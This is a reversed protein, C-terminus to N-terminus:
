NKKVFQLVISSKVRNNQILRENYINQEKQAQPIWSDECVSVTRMFTRTTTITEHYLVFRPLNLVKYLSSSPHINVKQNKLFTRYTQYRPSELYAINNPDGTSLAGM